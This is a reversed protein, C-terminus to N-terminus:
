LGLSAAATGDHWVKHSANQLQGYSRKLVIRYKIVKVFIRDVEPYFLSVDDHILIPQHVEDDVRIVNDFWALLTQVTGQERM